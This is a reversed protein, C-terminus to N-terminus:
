TPPLCSKPSSPHPTLSSPNARDDSDRAGKAGDKIGVGEDRLGQRQEAQVKGRFVHVEQEGSEAVLVGFETGLDTYKMGPAVIEFGRASPKEATVACKGRELAISASSCIELTAPGELVTEAGSDFVIEALGSKIALKRGAILREGALPAVAKAGTGERSPRPSISWVCDIERGLRAVPAPGPVSPRAAPRAAAAVGDGGAGRGLAAPIQAVQPQQIAPSHQMFKTLLTGATGAVVAAFLVSAIYALATNFRVDGVKNKARRVAIGLLGRWSSRRRGRARSGRPLPSEGGIHTMRGLIGLLSAREPGRTSGKQPGDVSQVPGSQLHGSQVPGSQVPGSSRAWTDLTNSEWVLDLYVDRAAPDRLLEELKAKQDERVEGRLSADTLTLIEEFLKPSLPGRETM